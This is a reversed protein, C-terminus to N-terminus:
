KQEQLKVFNLKLNLREM